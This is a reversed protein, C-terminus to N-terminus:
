RAVFRGGAGRRPRRYWLPSFWPMGNWVEVLADSRGMRGLVEAAAARAFVGYRGGRRIVAYGHRRVAAAAGLAASTRHLVELGAASWRTMLEDAHVESGGADPDDLDRWALVHIRAVGGARLEAALDEIGLM